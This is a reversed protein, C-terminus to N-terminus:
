KLSLFLIYSVIFVLMTLSDDRKNANSKVFEMNLSISPCVSDTITSSNCVDTKNLKSLSIGALRPPALCIINDLKANSTIIKEMLWASNCNCTMNAKIKVLTINQFNNCGFQVIRSKLIVFSTITGNSVAQEQMNEIISMAIILKCTINNFAATQITSVNSRYINFNVANIESFALSQITDVSDNLFTFKTFNLNRFAYPEINKISSHSIFLVQINRLGEFANTKITTINLFELVLTDISTNPQMKIFSAPIDALVGGKNDISIRKFKGAPLSLPLSEISCEIRGISKCECLDPCPIKTYVEDALVVTKLVFIFFVAILFNSMKSHKMSVSELRGLISSVIIIISINILCLSFISYYM